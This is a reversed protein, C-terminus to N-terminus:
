RCEGRAPGVPAGDNLRARHLGRPSFRNVVLNGKCPDTIRSSPVSSHRSAWVIRALKNAVVVAINHGRRRETAVAWAHFADAQPHSKARWLFSRAGHILLMRLYVDGQKGIAGLRRRLASSDEKPTLGLFSAFHRSSRFRRIDGVLAAHATAIIGVGPVTQLLTVDAMDQALATLQREVTRMNTELATIEDCTNALTTRILVPVSTPEGLLERVRPPRAACGPSHLHRIRPAAGPGHEPTRHSHRAVYLPPPATVCHGPARGDQRAGRPDRRQSGSRARLVQSDIAPCVGNKM